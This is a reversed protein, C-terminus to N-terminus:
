NILTQFTKLCTKYYDEKTERKSTLQSQNFDCEELSLPLNFNNQITNDEFQFSEKM